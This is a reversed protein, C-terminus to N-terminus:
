VAFSPYLESSKATSAASQGIRVICKNIKTFVSFAETHIGKSILLIELGTIHNVKRGDQKVRSNKTRLLCVYIMLRTEVPLGLIDFHNRPSVVVLLDALDSPSLNAVM